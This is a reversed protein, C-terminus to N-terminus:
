VWFKMFRIRLICILFLLKWACGPILQFRKMILITTTMTLLKIQWGIILFTIKNM